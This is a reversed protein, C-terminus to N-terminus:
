EDPQQNVGCHELNPCTQCNTSCTKLKPCEGGLKGGKIQFLDEQNIIEISSSELGKSNLNKLRNKLM